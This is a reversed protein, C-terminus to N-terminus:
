GDMWGEETVGRRRAGAARQENAVVARDTGMSEDRDTDTDSAGTRTVDDSRRRGSNVYSRIAVHSGQKQSSAGAPM